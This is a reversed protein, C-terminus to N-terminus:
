ETTAERAKDHADLADLARVYGKTDTNFWPPRPALLAVQRLLDLEADALRLRELRAEVAEVACPNVHGRGPIAGCAACSRWGDETPYLFADITQRELDPGLGAPGEDQEDVSPPRVTGRRELPELHGAAAAHAAAVWIPAEAPPSAPDEDTVPTTEDADSAGCNGCVWGQDSTWSTQGSGCVQCIMELDGM